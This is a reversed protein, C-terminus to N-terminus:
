TYGFVPSIGFGYTMPGRTERSYHTVMTVADDAVHRQSEGNNNNNAAADHIEPGSSAAM